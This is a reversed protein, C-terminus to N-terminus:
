RTRKGIEGKKFKKEDIHLVQDPRTWLLTLQQIFALRESPISLALVLSNKKPTYGVSVSEYRIMSILIIFTVWRM